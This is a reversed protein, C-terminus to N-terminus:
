KFWFALSVIVCQTIIAGFVLWVVRKFSEVATNVTKEVNSLRVKISREPEGNGFVEHNLEAVKTRTDFCTNCDWEGLERVPMSM